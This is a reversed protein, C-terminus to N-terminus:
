NNITINLTEVKIVCDQKIDKNETNTEIDNYKIQKDTKTNYNQKKNNIKNYKYMFKNICDDLNINLEKMYEINQKDTRYTIFENCNIFLKYFCNIYEINNELYHKPLKSYYFLILLQLIIKICKFDEKVYCYENCLYNHSLLHIDYELLISIYSYIVKVLHDIALKKNTENCNDVIEEIFRKIFNYFNHVYSYNNYCYKYVINNDNIIEYNKMMIDIIYKHQKLTLKNKYTENIFEFEYLKFLEDLNIIRYLIDRDYNENTPFINNNIYYNINFTNHLPDYLNEKNSRYFEDIFEKNHEEKEKSNKYNDIQKSLNVYSNFWKNYIYKNKFLVKKNYYTITKMPELSIEYINYINLIYYLDEISLNFQDVLLMEIKNKIEICSKRKFDVHWKIYDM